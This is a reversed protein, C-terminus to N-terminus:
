NSFGQPDPSPPPVADASQDRNETAFPTSTPSSSPQSSDSSSSQPATTRGSDSAETNSNVGATGGTGPASSSTGDAAYAPQGKIASILNDLIKKTSTYMDNPIDVTVTKTMGMKGATVEAVPKEGVKVLSEM